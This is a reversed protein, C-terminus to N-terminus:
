FAMKPPEQPDAAQARCPLISDGHGGRWKRTRAGSVGKLGQRARASPDTAALTRSCFGSTPDDHPKPPLTIRGREVRHHHDRYAYSNIGSLDQNPGEGCIRTKPVNKDPSGRLLSSFKILNFQISRYETFNPSSIILHADM